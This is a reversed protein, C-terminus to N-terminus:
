TVGHVVDEGFGKQGTGGFWRRRHNEPPELLSTQFSRTSDSWEKRWTTGNRGDKARNNGPM